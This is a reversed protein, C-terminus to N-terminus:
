PKYTKDLYIQFAVKLAAIRLSVQHDLQAYNFVADRCLIKLVPDNQIITEM